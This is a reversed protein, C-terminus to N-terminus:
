LTCRMARPNDYSAKPKIRAIDVKLTRAQRVGARIRFTFTPPLASFYKKDHCLYRDVTAVYNGPPLFVTHSSGDDGTATTMGGGFPKKGIPKRYISFGAYIYSQTKEDFIRLDMEGGREGLRILVPVPVHGSMLELTPTTGNPKLYFVSDGTPLWLRERHTASFKYKNCDPDFSRLSFRGDPSTSLEQVLHVSTDSCASEAVVHAGGAASGDPYLVRGELFVDTQAKTQNNGVVTDFCLILLCVLLSNAFTM